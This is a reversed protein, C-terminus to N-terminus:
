ASGGERFYHCAMCCQKPIFINIAYGFLGTVSGLLYGRELTQTKVIAWSSLYKRPSFSFAFGQEWERM